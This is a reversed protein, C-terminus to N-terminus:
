RDALSSIKWERLKAIITQKSVTPQTVPFAPPRDFYWETPKKPSNNAVRTSRPLCPLHHTLHEHSCKLQNAYNLPFLMSGVYALSVTITTNAAKGKPKM